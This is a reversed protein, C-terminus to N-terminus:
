AGVRALREEYPQVIVFGKGEFRMQLSEGSGRGFLSKIQIDTKLEPELGSSWGVTAQPDTCVPSQPTVELVMPKGHTAIVVAGTGELKVNFLGGSLMGTLRRVMRIDRTLTPEVALLDNGNMFLAEGALKIITLLRARNALYLKGTGTAKTFVAGESSIVKKLVNGVGQELIGERAFTIDGRYAVMSGIKMLVMASRLNVELLRESELEFFGQNRNQESHESVFSSLSTMSGLTPHWM